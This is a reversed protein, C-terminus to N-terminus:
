SKGQLRGMAGYLKKLRKLEKEDYFEIKGSTFDKAVEVVFKSAYTLDEEYNAGTACGPIPSVSTTAVGVLPVDSDIGPQFISNIHHVDNGYPTIDQMTTTLTSAPKGTVREQIDLLDESVKLIWGDKITPTIAFGNQNHIRNGKTADISIIADRREDVLHKNSKKTSVHSDMFPVPDHPVIPADPCIHTTIIVDGELEIGKEKMKALKLASSLAVIAGDADSVLGKVEPYASVGGLQGIIGLIRSDKNSPIIIKLFDTSGSGEKVRDIKIDVPYKQFLKKVTEGDVNPNDLLEMIKSVEDIM